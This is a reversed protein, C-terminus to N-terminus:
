IVRPAWVCDNPLGGVGGAGQMSGSLDLGWLFSQVVGNTENLEAIVNWGDYVFRNTSHPYYDGAYNTSVIKQIRRRQHDYDFEL